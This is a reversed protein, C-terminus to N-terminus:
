SQKGYKRLYEAAYELLAPSDKFMGLGSNCTSCLLGRPTKKIHDHDAFPSKPFKSFAEKCIACANNQVILAANYRELTWFVERLDRSKSASKGNENKRYRSHSQRQCEKCAKAGNPATYLNDGSREHGRKCHTQTPRMKGKWLFFTSMM